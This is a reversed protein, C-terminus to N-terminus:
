VAVAVTFRAVESQDHAHLVRAEVTGKAANSGVVDIHGDLERVARFDLIRAIAATLIETTDNKAM